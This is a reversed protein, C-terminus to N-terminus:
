REVGKRWWIIAAKKRFRAILGDGGEELKEALFSALARDHEDTVIGLYERWFSLAEDINDFPQDFNYDIIEVNAFISLDHLTRYTTLYDDRRPFERNFLLPYLERYYFKDAGPDAGTIIFVAKRACLDAERLFTTPGKLLDPVNACILVDHPSKDYEEWGSKLAKLNDLGRQAAEKQLLDIMASSPDIATVQKGALALPVALTGCGSGVDLFTSSGETTPLIIELSQAPLTSHALGRVYWAAKISNWFGSPKANM